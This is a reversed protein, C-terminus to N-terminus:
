RWSFNLLKLIATNVMYMYVTIFIDKLGTLITNLIAHQKLIQNSDSVEPVKDQYKTRNDRFSSLGAKSISM